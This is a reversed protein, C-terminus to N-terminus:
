LGEARIPLSFFFTTGAGEESEFYIHGGHREVLERCLYLGLGTGRIGTARVNEARVFRRFIHAQQERPIGMGHDRISFRAEHAEPDEGIAVEIVGGQPSYKIANNLLNSLVQEIRFADVMAWLHPLSTQVVIHHLSTTMQLQTAVRQTLAVLDTSSLHLQLRGTQMQAVDLLDETLKVLQQASQKMEQLKKSQWEDLTHEKGRAAHRLLMDTYGSMVTVPTRLEHTALSIFQDKIAEAEKLVTVDQYVGLVVQEQSALKRAMEQPLRHFSYPIEIPIASMLISIRTGDGRHIEVQSYHITKGSALARRVPLDTPPLPRGDASFFSIAHQTLFDEIPQGRKWEAGWFSMAARNALLLRAQPGQILFIGNPVENLILQLVDQRAEVELRAEQELRELRRHETVDRNIELIATPAGKEDYTLEWRSEVIVQGGDRRTHTLDGSWYGDQKLCHEITELPQPFRTKLLLHTIQGRAEQETWGYLDEAGKNWSIVRSQPDRVLIADHALNILERHQTREQEIRMRETIDRNIELTASPNGSADRVLVQRSETIVQRGERSTHILVGEWRGQQELHQDVAEQSVPFRTKLLLHTIQGRAEQETWGYLNEAGKNWSIVCSQSDRVLIADHALNILESQLAREYETLRRSGIRRQRTNM